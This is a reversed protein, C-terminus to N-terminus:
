IMSNGDRWEDAKVRYSDFCFFAGLTAISNSLKLCCDLCDSSEGDEPPCTTSTRSVNVALVAGDHSPVV